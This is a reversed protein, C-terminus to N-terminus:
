LDFIIQAEWVRNNRWIQLGHYTVAKIPTKIPHRAGDYTEGRAIADLHHETLSDIEFRRFLLGKTDFLFLFENLWAVLLEELGSAEVSIPISESESIKGPETMSEFLAEAAHGFLAPLSEGYVRVGADGTHDIFRFKTVM